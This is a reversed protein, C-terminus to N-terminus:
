LSDFEKLIRDGIKKWDYREEALKRAERGMKWRRQPHKLYDEIKVALHRASGPAVTYGQIGNTFVFRVGPLDSAIVPIGCAMAEILVIGFAESKNTSPLVFLDALNYHPVLDEDSVRGTFIVQKEINLEKALKKYKNKLDGTGCILLKVNNATRQANHSFAQLLIDVGKFRHAEDLAGLFMVVRDKKEGIAYKQRLEQLTPIDHPLVHFKDLHAGYPIEAFKEPNKKWISKISSNAVYDLSACIIKDAQQMLRKKVLLSPLGLARGWWKLDPTDMHFRIILKKEPHLLKYLWIIEATGFFPYHLYIIEHEKLKLWLKLLVAGKGIKLAPKLRHVSGTEPNHKESKDNGNSEPTLVVVRSGRESLIRAEEYASNGMGGKYPPFTSTIIAIKM